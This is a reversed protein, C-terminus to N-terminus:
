FPDVLLKERVSSSCGSGGLGGCFDQDAFPLEGPFGVAGLDDVLPAAEEGANLYPALVAYAAPDTVGDAGCDEDLCPVVSIGECISKSAYTAHKNASAYVFWRPEAIVPDNGIALEDHEVETFVRGHDNVTGEHAATYAEVIRVDGADGGPVPELSLVVRESDGAHSTFGGCSGYDHSYGLMMYAHVLEGVPAVRGVIGIVGDPDDVISEDEDLLIVPRLRDLVVDEWADVLGDADLDECPAGTAELALCPELESPLNCRLVLTAGDLETSVALEFPAPPAGGGGAGGTGGTTTSSAGGEATSGAEGGAGAGGGAGDGAGSTEDGSCALVLVSAFTAVLAPRM